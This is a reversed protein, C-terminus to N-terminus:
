PDQSPQREGRAPVPVTNQMPSDSPPPLLGLSQCLTQGLIRYGIESPHVFDNFYLLSEKPILDRMDIFTGGASEVIKKRQQVWHDRGYLRPHGLDFVGLDYVFTFPLKKGHSVLSTICEQSRRSGFADEINGLSSRRWMDETDPFAEGVPVLAVITPLLTKLNKLAPTMDDNFGGFFLREEIHPLRDTVQNWEPSLLCLNGGDVAHRGFIQNQGCEKQIVQDLAASGYAGRGAAAANITSYGLILHTTKPSYTEQSRDDVSSMATILADANKQTYWIIWAVPRFFFFALTVFVGIGVLYRLRKPHYLVFRLFVLVAAACGICAKFGWLLIWLPTVLSVLFVFFTATIDATIWTSRLFIARSLLSAVLVLFFMGLRFSGDGLIQDGKAELRASAQSTVVVDFQNGPIQWHCTGGQIDLQQRNQRFTYVVHAENQVDGDFCQLLAKSETYPPAQHLLERVLPAGDEDLSLISYPTKKADPNRVMIAAANPKQYIRFDVQQITRHGLHLMLPYGPPMLVTRKDLAAPQPRMPYHWAVGRPLIRDQADLEFIAKQIKEEAPQVVVILQRWSAIDVLTM